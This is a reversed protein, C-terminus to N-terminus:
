LNEKSFVCHIMCIYYNCAMIYFFLFTNYVMGCKPICTTTDQGYELAIGKVKMVGHGDYYFLFSGVQRFFVRNLVEM